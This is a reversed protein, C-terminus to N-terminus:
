RRSSFLPQHSIRHAEKARSLGAEGDDFGRPYTTTRPGAQVRGSGMALSQSRSTDLSGLLSSTLALLQFLPKNLSSVLYRRNASDIVDDHKQHQVPTMIYLTNMASSCHLM